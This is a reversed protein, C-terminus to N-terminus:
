TICVKDKKYFLFQINRAEEFKASEQFLCLTFHNFLSYNFLTKFNEIFIIKHYLMEEFGLECLEDFYSVRELDMHVLELLKGKDQEIEYEYYLNFTPSGLFLLRLISKL